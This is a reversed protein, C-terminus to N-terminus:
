VPNGEKAQNIARKVKTLAETESLLLVMSEGNWCNM